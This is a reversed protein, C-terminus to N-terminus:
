SKWGAYYEATPNPREWWDLKFPVNAWDGPKRSAKMPQNDPEMAFPVLMWKIVNDYTESTVYGESRLERLAHRVHDPTRKIEEAIESPTAPGGRLYVLVEDHATM